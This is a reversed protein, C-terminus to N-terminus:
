KTRKMLHRYHGDVKIYAVAQNISIFNRDFNVDSWQLALAEGIRCGTGLLFVILNKVGEHKNSPPKNYTCLKLYIFFSNFIEGM